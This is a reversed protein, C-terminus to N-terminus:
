KISYILKLKILGRHAQVAMTNKSQGTIASMEELSLQDIYRMRMVVQYKKPLREIMKLAVKGDAVNFLRRSDDFSPEFGNGILVDLSAPKNKRYEDIILGNLIHYLFARMLDIKGGKVLYMWTKMFTTQVLDDSLSKDHIKYIARSRLGDGYNKYATTLEAQM